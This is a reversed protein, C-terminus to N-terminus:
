ECKKMNLEDKVQLEMSNMAFVWLIWTIVFQWWYDDYITDVHGFAMPSAYISSYRPVFQM